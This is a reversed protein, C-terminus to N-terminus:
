YKYSDPRPLLGDLVALESGTTAEAFRMAAAGVANAAQNLAEANGLRLEVTAVADLAEGLLPQDVLRQMAWLQQKARAARAAATKGFTGASTAKAVARLSAELDAMTGVVFMVRVRELTSPANHVGGTRQWNHRVRGQSWAVLEFGASGANHGGVNVLEEEPTTHCALCQRAILYLNSPNNMGAAISAQRRQRRHDPPETAATAGAGGYDAHLNVWDAAAGHCSECSVGSVVRLRGRTADNQQRTYHCKVCTDNRKVSRLGLRQAIAKAEPTRHLTDFTEFHPTAQWQTIEPQHCKACAEYGLVKAPDCKLPRPEDARLPM